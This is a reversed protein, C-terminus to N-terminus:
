QSILRDIVKINGAKYPQTHRPEDGHALTWDHPGFTVTWPGQRASSATQPETLAGQPDLPSWGRSDLAKSLISAKGRNPNLTNYRRPRTRRTGKSDLYSNDPILSPRPNNLDVMLGPHTPNHPLSAAMQNIIALESFCKKALIADFGIITPM